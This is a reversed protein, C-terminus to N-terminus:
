VGILRSESVAELGCPWTQLRRPSRPISSQMEVCLKQKPLFGQGSLVQSIFHLSRLINHITHWVTLDCTNLRHAIIALIAELSAYRFMFSLQGLRNQGSMSNSIM